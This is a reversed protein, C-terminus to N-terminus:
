RAGIVRAWEPSPRQEYPVNWVACNGADIVQVPLMIEPPITEGRLHRVAAETAIESMAMADFSATALIRGAAIAAVAEPIANVGVILPPWGRSPRTAMADLVGLAMVDNACLVADVGPWQHFVERFADRAVDRQYEGKIACRVKIDPNETLADRFGKMRDHSTVSSGTGEVIIITGEGGLKGFLHRAINAGLTRDDSGVFTVRRGATTRAIINFLPIGAADLGLIADNCATEHAPVFVVADPKEAIARGILAIQEPASDPVDPVYHVTTAGLRAATRDAGLRAAQYAPNTRNKTFVAVRPM